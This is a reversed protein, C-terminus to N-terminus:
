APGGPKMNVTRDVLFLPREKTELYIRGVYEGMAGFGLLSVALNGLLLLYITTLGPVTGTFLYMGLYVLALVVTAFLALCGLASFLQLPKISFSVIANVAINILYFFPAKSVGAERPRRDYVIGTSRYGIWHALGRMYRNREPLQNMGDIARRSLLRFDTANEVIEVDSLAHVLKYLLRAALAKWLPDGARSRVIGYVVDNGEEWKKLFTPIEQPPDQLDSFLTIAADGSAFRLGATISAEVTFNRSFKLYRWRPDRGCLAEAVKGTADKSDNDIVIVEYDYPVSAMVATVEDFARPLNKEENMAPMLITLTKKM